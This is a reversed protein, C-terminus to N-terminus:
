SYVLFYRYHNLIVLPTLSQLHRVKRTSNIKVTQRIDYLQDATLIVFM